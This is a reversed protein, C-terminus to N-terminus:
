ESFYHILSSPWYRCVKSFHPEGCVTLDKKQQFFSRSPKLTESRNGPIDYENLYVEEYKLIRWLRETFIDDIARGKGDMSIQVPQYYLGSPSVGLLTTQTYRPFSPRDFDVLRKREGHHMNEGIAFPYKRQVRDSMRASPSRTIERDRDGTRTMVFM